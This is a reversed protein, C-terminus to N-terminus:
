SKMRDYNPLTSLDLCIAMLVSCVQIKNESSEENYLCRTQRPHNVLVMHFGSGEKRMSRADFLDPMQEHQKPGTGIKYVYRHIRCETRMAPMYDVVVQAFVLKCVLKM